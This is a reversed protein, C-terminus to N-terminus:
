SQLLFLNTHRPLWVRSVPVLPVPLDAELGVSPMVVPEQSVCFWIVCLDALASHLFAIPDLFIFKLTLSGTVERCNCRSYYIEQCFPNKEWTIIRIHFYM